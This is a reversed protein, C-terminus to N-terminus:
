TQFLYICSKGAQMSMSALVRVTRERERERGGELVCLLRNDVCLSRLWVGHVSRLFSCAWRAAMEHSACRLRTRRRRRLPSWM